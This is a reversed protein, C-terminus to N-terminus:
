SYSGVLYRLLRKAAQMHITTPQQMYQSLLQVTFSLDPRIITLYILQGLLRQYTTPNPLLDGKDQTLKLDPDMPLKLPKTNLMGHEKLLDLAYKRHPIFFGSSSHDIKLGLFYRIHGLDKM